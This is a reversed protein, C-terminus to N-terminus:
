LDNVQICLKLTRIAQLYQLVKRLKEWDATQIDQRARTSLFLLQAMTRKFQMAQEELLCEVRREEAITFLNDPHPTASGRRIVEPFDELIEDVDDSMYVQFIGLDTFDLNMGLYKGKDGQHVTM